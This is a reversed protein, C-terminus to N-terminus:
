LGSSQLMDIQFLGLIKPTTKKSTSWTQSQIIKNRFQNSSQLRLIYELAM